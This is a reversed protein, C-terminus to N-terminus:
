IEGNESSDDTTEVTQQPKTDEQIKSVAELFESRKEVTMKQALHVGVEQLLDPNRHLLKKFEAFATERRLLKLNERVVSSRNDEKVQTSLWDVSVKDQEWLFRNNEGQDEIFWRRLMEQAHGDKLLPKRATMKKKMDAELLRRRLRWFLTTRAETWPIIDRIVGKDKMRTPTDHLDAFQVSVQHFMPALIEERKKMLIEIEAKRDPILDPSKLETALKNMVLDLRQMVLRQEKMRMKISVIGEAELVGGRANPDAYMEM